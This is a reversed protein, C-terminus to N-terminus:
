LEGRQAQYAYRLLQSLQGVLAHLGNAQRGFDRMARALEDEWSVRSDLMSCVCCRVFDSLSQAGREVSLGKLRDYEEDTLRFSILRRKGKAPAAALSQGTQGAATM